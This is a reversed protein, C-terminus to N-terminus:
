KSEEKPALAPPEQLATLIERIAHAQEICLPCTRGYNMKKDWHNHGIPFARVLKTVKALIRREGRIQENLRHAEAQASDREAVVKRPWDVLEPNATHWQVTDWWQLFDADTM